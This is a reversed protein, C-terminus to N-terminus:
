SRGSTSERVPSSRGDIQWPDLVTTLSDGYCALIWASDIDGVEKGKLQLAKIPRDYWETMM